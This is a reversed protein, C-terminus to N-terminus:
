HGAALVANVQAKLGPDIEVAGNLLERGKGNGYLHLNLGNDYFAYGYIALAKETDGDKLEDFDKLGRKVFLDFLQGRSPRPQEVFSYVMGDPIITIGPLNLSFKASYDFQVPMRVSLERILARVLNDNSDTLQLLSALRQKEVLGPYDRWYWYADLHPCHLASVDERYREVRQLYWIPFAGSDGWTFMAAGRDCSKLVNKGYDYAIHYNAWNNENLNMAFTSAPLVALALAPLAAAHLKLFGAATRLEAVACAIFVSLILYGPTHFSELLFINEPVPNGYYTVGVNLVLLVISATVVLFSRRRVSSIFGFIVFFLSAFGFERVINFSKLQALFLSPTREPGAVAYGKRLIVWLFQVLTQPDGWILAKPQWARFPLYLMVTLGAIFLAIGLVAYRLDALMARDYMVLAALIVPLLVLSTYHASIAIGAIFSVVLVYRRDRDAAFRMLLYISIAIILTSLGYVEAIVSQSWRTYTASFVLSATLAACLDWPESGLVLRAIRYTIYACLAGTFASFLTVKYAMSGFPLWVLMHSLIMYLPYGPPHSTGLTVSSSILEGSDFFTVNPSATAVYLVFPVFFALYAPLKRM